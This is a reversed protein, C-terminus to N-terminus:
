KQTFHIQLYSWGSLSRSFIRKSTGCHLKPAKGWDNLTWIILESCIKAVTSVLGFVCQSSHRFFFMLWMQNEAAFSMPRPSCLHQLGCCFHMCSSPKQVPLTLAAATWLPSALRCVETWSLAALGPSPPLWPSCHTSCTLFSACQFYQWPSGPQSLVSSCVARASGDPVGAHHRSRVLLAWGKWECFSLLLDMLKIAEESLRLAM